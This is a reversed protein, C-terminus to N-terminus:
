LSAAKPATTTRSAGRTDAKLDRVFRYYSSSEVAVVDVAFEIESGEPYMKIFEDVSTGEPMKINVIEMAGKSTRKLMQAAVSTKGEFTSPKHSLLPGRAILVGAESM